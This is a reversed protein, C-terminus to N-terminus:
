LLVYNDNNEKQKKKKKSKKNNTKGWLPLPEQRQEGSVEWHKSCHETFIQYIFLSIETLVNQLKETYLIEPLLHWNEPHFLRDM